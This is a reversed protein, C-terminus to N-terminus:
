KKVYQSFMYKINNYKAVCGENVCVYNSYLDFLNVYTDCQLDVDSQLVHTVYASKFMPHGLADNYLKAGGIVFINHVKEHKVLFEIADHLSPLIVVDKHCETITLTSSIVINLRDKLPRFQEPLSLWTNKGMVVANIKCKPSLTTIAKFHKMDAPIHWPIDNKYGIGGETTCAMIISFEKSMTFNSYTIYKNLTINLM